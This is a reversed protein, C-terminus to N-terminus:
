GVAIDAVVLGRESIEGSGVLLTYRGGLLRYRGSAGYRRLGLLERSLLDDGCQRVVSEITPGTFWAVIEAGDQRILCIM